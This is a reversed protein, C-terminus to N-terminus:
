RTIDLKLMDDIDPFFDDKGLEWKGTDPAYYLWAREGVPYREIKYLESWVTHENGVFSIGMVLRIIDTETVRDYYLCAGEPDKKILELPASMLRRVSRDNLHFGTVDLGYERIAREVYYDIESLLEEKEEMEKLYNEIGSDFAYTTDKEKNQKQRQGFEVIGAM